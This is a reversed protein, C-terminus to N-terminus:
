TRGRLANLASERATSWSDKPKSGVSGPAVGSGETPSESKKKEIFEKVGEEKAKALKEEMAKIYQPLKDAIVTAVSARIGNANKMQMREALAMIEAENESFIEGYKEQMEKTVAEMEKAEELSRKEMEVASVKAKLEELEQLLKPSIEMEEAKQLNAYYRDLDEYTRIGQDGYLEALEDESSIDLEPYKKAYQADRKAQAKEQEMAELKLRMEKFASNEEPTQVKKEPEAVEQSKEAETSVGEVDSNDQLDVVDEQLDTLGNNTELEMKYGKMHDDPVGM